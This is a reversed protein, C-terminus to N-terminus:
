LTLNVTKNRLKSDLNREMYPSDRMRRPLSLSFIELSMKYECTYMRILYQKKERDDGDQSSCWPLPILRHSSLLPITNILDGGYWAMGYGAIMTQQLSVIELLDYSVLSALCLLLNRATITMQKVKMSITRKM